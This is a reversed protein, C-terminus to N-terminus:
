KQIEEWIGTKEFQEVSEKAQMVLEKDYGIMELLRIANRTTVRGIKLLYNFEVDHARVEEEFHYNTYIKDLIYSLEIDHTAAFPLVGDKRIEKLIRSSAGIREITNTGRLVEDIICLLCGEKDTEDLIRKLSRIEVIYYSEGSLLDDRLAMSTMVKFFPAEYHSSTCTYITQALIANVAVNKLFTSKGSANSGTVLIGGEARISNAVPESLLPHYLNKVDMYARETDKFEPISYYPMAERFSAISIMSDLYGFIHILGEIEKQNKGMAEMMDHFKILDLHTLMRVYDMFLGELGGGAANRDVVLFAGRQFGSLAKKYEGAKKTYSELQPINLKELEKQAQLLQLVCRFSTLYRDIDQKKSMYTVLNVAGAALLLFVGTSPVAMFVLLSSFFAACFAIQVKKGQIQVEQAVHIAEYFSSTGAKKINSLLIQVKKRTEEEQRFFGILRDREKLEQEEFVPKRLLDYLCGSGVASCSQNLLIFIRDMDLDNCTIDDIFFGQKERQYFYQSIHNLEEYTYERKPINGWAEKIRMLFVKKRGRNEQWIAAGAAFLFLLVIGCGMVADDM